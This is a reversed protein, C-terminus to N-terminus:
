EVRSASAREIARYLTSRAVGLRAAVESVNTTRDALLNKAHEIQRPSLKPRRGGERGRARAVALGIRTRERTLSREMESLAAMTRLFLDGSPAATDIGDTLSKFGVDRLRLEDVFKIL